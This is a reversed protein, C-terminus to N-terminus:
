RVTYTPADVGPPVVVSMASTRSNELRLTKAHVAVAGRCITACLYNSLNTGPQWPWQPGRLSVVRQTAPNFTALGAYEKDIALVQYWNLVFRPESTSSNPHPGCVMIWEGTKLGDFASKQPNDGWDTLLLEGGNLGSSVVAAGVARENEGVANSYNPLSNGLSLYLSQVDQPLVRKYFVVVSVDYSHGEPNRAMGDRAANTTPVVTVIWSYNGTSQRVLPTQQGAITATDWNQSAPRDARPPFDTALDDNGAFLQRASELEMQWATSAQQPPGMQQFTVRRIPWAWPSSTANNVGLWPSWASGGWGAAKAYYTFTQFTSAPFAAAAVHAYPNPPVAGNPFALAALGMPDIVFASGFQKGILTADTSAATQTLAEQLALGFPRAFKARHPAVNNVPHPVPAYQADSPFTQGIAGAAPPVTPPITVCWAGPNLMGRSVIESMVSQAIASGRDSIDAKVIYYSGVPFLAAVGLLGVTLIGM